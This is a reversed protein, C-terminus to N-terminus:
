GSELVFNRNARNLKFKFEGNKYAVDNRLNPKIKIPGKSLLQCFQLTAKSKNHLATYDPERVPAYSRVFRRAGSPWVLKSGRKTRKRVSKSDPEREKTPYTFFFRAPYFLFSFLELPYRNKYRTCFLVFCFFFV